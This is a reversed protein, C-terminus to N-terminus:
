DDSDNAGILVISHKNAARKYFAEIDIDPHADIFAQKQFTNNGLSIRHEIMGVSRVTGIERDKLESRFSAVLEKEREGLEKKQRRVRRLEDIDAFAILPLAFERRPKGDGEPAMYDDPAGSDPPEDNTIHKEWWPGVIDFVRQIDDECHSRDLVRTFEIINDFWGELYWHSRGTVALCTVMQWYWSRPIEGPELRQLQKGVWFNGNKVELGGGDDVLRDCNAFLRPEKKSRLTGVRRISVGAKNAFEQAIVDEVLSGKRMPFTSEKPPVRQTKDLWLDYETSDEFRGEGFLAAMDSGGIGERRVALWRERDQAEKVSLILDADPYAWDAAM